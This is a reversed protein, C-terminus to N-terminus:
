KTEIEVAIDMGLIGNEISQVEHASVTKAAIENIHDTYLKAPKNHQDFRKLLDSLINMLENFRTDGLGAAKSHQLENRTLRIREIDDGIAINAVQIKQWEGGWGNTPTHKRLKRHEQYLYTIDCDSRQRLNPIDQKLLDYSADALVNLVIIGMKTFNIQEVTFGASSATGPAEDQVFVKNGSKIRVVVKTSQAPTKNQSFSAISPTSRPVNASIDSSSQQLDSWEGIFEHITSCTKCYYITEQEESFDFTGTVSEPKTLGCEWKKEFKVNSMKFRTSIIETIEELVFDAIYKYMGRVVQKGFQWVQIQIANPCKMVLLKRLQTAKQLEFVGSGRFLAIQKKHQKTAVEAVEYKRCLSAILHNILHPPLFGFKFNLWTSKKCIDKTVNFMKYIDCKPEEKIMCPVYFCPKADATDKGSINPRIIIDFKEMVNLVHDKHKYLINQEIKFIDELVDNHLKGRQYFEEWRKQNRINAARFKKATVICKFADSLWQTDLIIYDPLDKFYVLARIEHHFDLFLRLEEVSLPKPTAAAMHMMEQYSIIPLEKKKEQLCQELQIFKLPYDTNWTRMSRALNLIDQRIQLFVHNDDKKNSIFYKSRIHGREDEALNETYQWLNKICADELEEIECTVADKWTGIVVVPPDICNPSKNDDAENKDQEPRCYCHISDIWLCFLDKASPDDAENLKTVVLYIADSSLFTQHTHYFEEDGAFDWLLLTAYEEKDTLDVKSKATQMAEFDRGAQELSQDPHQNTVPPDGAEQSKIIEPQQYVTGSKKSVDFSTSPTNDNIAIHSEVPIEVTGKNQLKGEYEKLLRAQTETEENNGDLKNWIGDDSKAKCKIKHIEIGNTSTVDTIDEGFLRKILSTKGAGKKGVVVLRIDRKKESGSELLKLYLEVSRKDTMLKIETPVEDEIGLGATVGSSKESMVTQLYEMVEEDPGFEGTAALDYPTKGEHTKGFPNIGGEEVLYRTVHLGGYEAALHLATKGDKSTIDKNCRNELLLRSVEVRGYMVALMLATRGNVNTIDKNCKNELLLRSVEVHGGMAAFM